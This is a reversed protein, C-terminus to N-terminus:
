SISSCQISEKGKKTWSVMEGEMGKVNAIEAAENILMM